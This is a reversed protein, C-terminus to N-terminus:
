GVEDAISVGDVVTLGDVDVEVAVAGGVVVVGVVDLGGGVVVVVEFGGVGGVGVGRVGGARIDRARGGRIEGVGVWRELLEGLGGRSWTGIGVDEVVSEVDSGGGPVDARVLLNLGRGGLSSGGGPVDARVLLNFGTGLVGGACGSWTYMAVLALM